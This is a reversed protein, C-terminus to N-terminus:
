LKEKGSKKKRFNKYQLNHDIVYQFISADYKSMYGESILHWWRTNRTYSLETERKMIVQLM